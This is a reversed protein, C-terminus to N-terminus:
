NECRWHNVLYEICLDSLTSAGYSSSQHFNKNAFTGGNNTIGTQKALGVLVGLYRTLLSELNM